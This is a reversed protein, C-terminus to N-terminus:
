QVHAPRQALPSPLRLGAGCQATRSTHATCAAAAGLQPLAQVACRLSVPFLSKCSFRNFAELTRQSRLGQEALGVFDGHKWYVRLTTRQILLKM